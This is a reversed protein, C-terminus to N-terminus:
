IGKQGSFIWFPSSTKSYLNGSLLTNSRGGSKKDKQNGTRIRMIRVLLPGLVFLLVVTVILIVEWGMTIVPRCALLNTILVAFLLVIREEPTKLRM